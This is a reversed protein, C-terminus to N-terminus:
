GRFAVRTSQLAEELIDVLKRRNVKEEFSIM